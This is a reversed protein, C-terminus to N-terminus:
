LHVEGGRGRSEIQHVRGWSDMHYGTWNQNGDQIGTIRGRANSSGQIHEFGNKELFNRIDYYANHWDGTTYHKKLAETDPDFNIGKRYVADKKRRFVLFVPIIFRSGNVFSRDWASQMGYLSDSIVHNTHYLLGRFHEETIVALVHGQYGDVAFILFSAPTGSVQKGNHNFNHFVSGYLRSDM